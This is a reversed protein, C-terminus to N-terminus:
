SLIAIKKDGGVFSCPGQLPPPSHKVSTSYTNMLKNEQKDEPLREWERFM